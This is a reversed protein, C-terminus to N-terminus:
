NEFYRETVTDKNLLWSPVKLRDIQDKKYVQQLQYRSRAKLASDRLAKGATKRGTIRLLTAYDNLTNALLPHDDDYSEQLIELTKQYYDEANEKNGSDRYLNALARMIATVSLDNEGKMSSLADIARKYLSEAQEIEGDEVFRTARELVTREPGSNEEDTMHDASSEVGFSELISDLDVMSKDSAVTQPVPKEEVQPKAPIPMISPPAQQTYFEFGCSCERALPHRNKGCAPCKAGISRPLPIPSQAAERRIGLAATLFVAILTIETLFFILMNSYLMHNVEGAYAWFPAFGIFQFLEGDKICWPPLLTLAMILMSALILVSQQKRNLRM